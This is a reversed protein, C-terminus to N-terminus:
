ANSGYFGRADTWGTAWRASIGHKIVETNEDIWTRSRPKRRWLFKLGHPADTIVGWNTTSSSWFPVPVQKIGMDGVVNMDNNATGPAKDSGLISKWAGWQAVPHVVKEVTYGETIGDHGPILMVNQIVTTLAAMSPSFAVSLTNSYTGGGPLTHSASALPQGDGGTYGTNFARNLINAGDVDATKWAARVLRKAFDLYKDNYKGDEELEETLELILGYKNSSYRKQYGEYLQGVDLAQGESKQTIFGPGGNELDDIYNENMSGVTMFKKFTAKGEAGQPDDTVVANLTKKLTKYATSTTPTPM